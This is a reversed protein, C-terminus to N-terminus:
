RVSIKRDRDRDVGSSGNQCQNRVVFRRRPIGRRRKTTQQRHDILPHDLPSGDPNADTVQADDRTVEDEHVVDETAPTTDASPTTAVPAPTEEAEVTWDIAEVVAPAPAPVLSRAAVLTLTLLIGVIGAALM